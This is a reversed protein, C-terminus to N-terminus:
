ELEEALLRDIWNHLEELNIEELCRRYGFIKNKCQENLLIEPKIILFSNEPPSSIFDFLHKKHFPFLVIATKQFALALSSPGSPDTIFLDAKNLLAAIQALNLQNVLNIFKCNSKYLIDLIQISPKKGIITITYDTNQNLGEILGQFHSTFWANNKSGSALYLVILKKYPITQFITDIFKLEKRQLHINFKQPIYEGQHCDLLDALNFASPLYVNYPMCRFKFIRKNFFISVRQWGIGIRIPIHSFYAAAATKFQPHLHFVCDYGDSRLDNVLNGIGKYGYHDSKPRFHIIKSVSSVRTLIPENEPSTLYEINSKPFCTKLYNVFPLSLIVENASGTNDILIKNLTKM